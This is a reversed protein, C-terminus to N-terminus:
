DPRVVRETEEARVIQGDARADVQGDAGTEVRTLGALRVQRDPYQGSRRLAGIAGGGIRRRAIAAGDRLSVM